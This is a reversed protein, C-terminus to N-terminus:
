AVGIGVVIVDAAISEGTELTVRETDVSAIRVGCRVEVGQDAHVEGVAAGIEAGLGRILPAPLGELVIVENGLSRVTAAVELGIFGAGIVVVRRGGGTVLARLALADDLTRMMLVNPSDPQGPLRRASAGTAIVLGDFRIGAGDALGVIRRDVDLSAAPVGLRWEIQLPEADDLRRLAIREAEWEGSLLKKSLPPRDYPHHIESGVMTVEGHFGASRLTEAARLGALSAGVIVIHEVRPCWISGRM